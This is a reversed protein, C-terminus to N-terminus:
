MVKEVAVIANYLTLMAERYRLLKDMNGAEIVAWTKLARLMHNM